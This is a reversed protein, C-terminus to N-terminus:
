GRNTLGVRLVREVWVTVTLGEAEAAARVAALLSRPLRLSLRERPDSARPRGAGYRAGGRPTM